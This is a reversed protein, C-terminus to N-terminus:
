TSGALIGPEANAIPSNDPRGLRVLFVLAWFVIAAFVFYKLQRGRHSWLHAAVDELAAPSVGLDALSTDPSTSGPLQLEKALAKGTTDLVPAIERITMATSVAPMASQDDAPQVLWGAVVITASVLLSAVLWGRQNRSLQSFYSM